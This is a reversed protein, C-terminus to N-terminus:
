PVQLRTPVFYGRPPVSNLAGESWKREIWNMMEDTMKKFEAEGRMLARTLFPNGPRFIGKRNVWGDHVAKAYDVERGYNPNIVGGGGAQIHYTWSYEDQGSISVGFPGMKFIRDSPTGRAIRISARLSGGIYGKRGTSAPTGVPCEQLAYQYVKNWYRWSLWIFKQYKEKQIERIKDKTAQKTGLDTEEIRVAM